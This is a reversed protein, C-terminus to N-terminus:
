AKGLLMWSAFSIIAIGIIVPVFIASIRDALRAIPAKSATASEVLEIIKALMSDEGAHTVQMHFYGSQCITAGIVTDGEKKEQPLSEGTIASPDIFGSGHTIVGDAALSQGAHVILIDGKQIEATSITVEEGIRLVTPPPPTLRMLADIASGTRERAKSEFFKGLGILALIMGASDFYLNNAFHQVTAADGTGQAMYIRALAYLGFLAATASGLGVLSDMNPSAQLIGRLGTIFIRYNFLLIPLTLVAQALAWSLPATSMDIFAPLPLHVMPAMAVYMLISAFVLSFLLPLPINKFFNPATAAPQEQQMFANEAQKEGQQEETQEEHHPTPTTAQGHTIEKYEQINKTNEVKLPPHLTDQGKVYEMIGKYPKAKYGASEMAHIIDAVQIKESDFNVLMNQRLVNVAVKEIGDMAGLLAIVKAECATCHVNGITFDQRQLKKGGHPPEANEGNQAPSSLPTLPSSPIFPMPAQIHEVPTASYGAQEMAKTIDAPQIKGDNFHVRMTKRLVNVAIKEIGDIDGLLTLVKAECATCHVNGINFDQKIIKKKETELQTNSTQELTTTTTASALLPMTKEATTSTNISSKEDATHADASKHNDDANSPKTPKEQSSLSNSEKAKPIKKQKVNSIHPILPLFASKEMAKMAYKTGAFNKEIVAINTKNSDFTIVVSKRLTDVTAKQVGHLSMVQGHIKGQCSACHVKNLMFAQEQLKPSLKDEKVKSMPFPSLLSAIDPKETKVPEEHTHSFRTPTAEYGAQQMTSVISAVGLVDNDFTVLMSKRLINISVEQVGKLEMLLKTVKAECASCHVNSLSFTQKQM